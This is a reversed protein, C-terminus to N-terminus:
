TRQLAVWAQGLSLGGDNPPVAMSERMAVGRSALADRLGRALIANLFCGGGCAVVAIGERRAARAVWEALAEVLTAHFLAAGFSADREDALRALLPSLDLENAQTIAYRSADARVPGHAEALGELLMAAQGEFAMRRRVGLLGAAADFQRGM